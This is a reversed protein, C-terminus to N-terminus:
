AVLVANLEDMVREMEQGFLNSAKVRGGKGYFPDYDFDEWGVSLSTAIQDKIMVLWERQEPTFARGAREQQALWEEFRRDVLASFPELVDCEGVAFRVLSVLNTLLTVAHQSGARGAGRVKAKDLTVTQSPTLDHAVLVVKSELHSLDERKLGQLHRNIAHEIDYLDRVRDKLFEAALFVRAHKKIIASVAFEATVTGQEITQLIEHHLEPDRLMSVHADFIRLYEGGAKEAAMKQVAQTEAIAARVAREFRQKEAPVESPNLKRHSIPFERSDLVLAAAIAVGPSAAIGTKEVM